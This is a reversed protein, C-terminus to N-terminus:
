YAQLGLWKRSREFRRLVLWEVLFIILISIALLPLVAALLVTIMVVTKGVRVDPLLPPAGLVGVPNRRRWLVLGSISMVVLGVATVVGLLQNFWGFLQGEHVAVGIGIARDIVPREQFSKISILEGTEGNLWANSRLPRNQHRSKLQWVNPDNRSVSLLVPPALNLAISQSLLKENVYTQRGTIKAANKKEESRSLSWDQKMPEANWQRLEKFASGWVLAWPLGTILLFLVMTSIWVGIVAHLDRWFLRRGQRLRLYFLGALGRNSRPWWLYLGTIILVIAWCAALEVIVSGVNGALLEGHFTRVMRIFQDNYAVIKMVELSYPNVYALTRKGDNLLHIIVAQHENETLQYSSFKAGPLAILAAQIQQKATSRKNTVTLNHYPADVWADIQPKFLYIGGSVSLTIILPICLLGAYFHWRWITRYLGKQFNSKSQKVSVGNM